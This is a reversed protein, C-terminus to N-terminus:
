NLFTSKRFAVAKTQTSSCSKEKEQHSVAVVKLNLMQVMFFIITTVLDDVSM